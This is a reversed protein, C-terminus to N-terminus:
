DKSKKNNLIILFDKPRYNTTSWECFGDYGDDPKTLEIELYIQNYTDKRLLRLGFFRAAHKIEQKNIKPSKGYIKIQM